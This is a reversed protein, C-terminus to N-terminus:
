DLRLEQPLSSHPSPAQGREAAYCDYFWRVRYIQYVSAAPKPAAEGGLPPLGGRWVPEWMLYTTARAFPALLWRKHCVERRYVGTGRNQAKVPRASRFLAIGPKRGSRSYVRQTNTRRHWRKRGSRILSVVMCLTTMLPVPRYVGALLM